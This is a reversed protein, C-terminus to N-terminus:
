KVWIKHTIIAGQTKIQLIYFGSQSPAYMVFPSGEVKHVELLQGMVSYLSVYGSQVGEIILHQNPNLLTASLTVNSAVVDDIDTVLYPCVECTRTRVLDSM